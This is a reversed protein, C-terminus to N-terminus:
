IKVFWLNNLRRLFTDRIRFMFSGVWRFIYHVIYIAIVFSQPDWISYNLISLNLLKVWLYLLPLFLLFPCCLNNYIVYFLLAILYRICNYVHLFTWSFGFKKVSNLFLFSIVWLFLFDNINNFYYRLM